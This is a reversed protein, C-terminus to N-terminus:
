CNKEGKRYKEAEMVLAKFLRLHRTDRITMEPHWQVAIMWPQTCHEMAEIVGDAARATIRWVRPVKDVAQHHKSLTELPDSGLIEALRSKPDIEVPHRADGEDGERHVVQSGVRDPIDEMLTGGSAVNLLQMGRCIGLVPLSRHLVKKALALEFRDRERDIEAIAGHQEGHYWAPDLDGGGAFIIGHLIGPLAEIDTEVPPLLVPIGGAKRVATVYEVPLSFRHQRDAGYITIGIVPQKFKM